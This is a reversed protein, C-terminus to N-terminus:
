TTKIKSSATRLFSEDKPVHPAKHMFHPIILTVETIYQVEGGYKRVQFKPLLGVITTDQIRFAIM